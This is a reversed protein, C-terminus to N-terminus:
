GRVVIDCNRRETAAKAQWKTSENLPLNSRECERAVADHLFHPHGEIKGGGPGVPAPHMAVIERFLPRAPVM